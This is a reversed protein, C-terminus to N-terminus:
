EIGAVLEDKMKGLREAVFYLNLEKSIRLTIGVVLVQSVTQLTLHKGVVGIEM